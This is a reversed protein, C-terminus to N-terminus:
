VSPPYPSAGRRDLKPIGALNLELISTQGDRNTSSTHHPARSAIGLQNRDRKQQKSTHDRGLLPTKAPPIPHLFPPPETLTLSSPSCTRSVPVRSGEPTFSLPALQQLKKFPIVTVNRLPLAKRQSVTPDNLQSVPERPINMPSFVLPAPRM